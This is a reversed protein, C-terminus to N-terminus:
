CNPSCPRSMASTTPTSSRGCPNRAEAPDCGLVVYLESSWHTRGTGYNHRFSGLHAIRQAAALSRESERLARRARAEVTIDRVTSMMSHPSGDPNAKLESQVELEIVEGDSRLARFNLDRRVPARTEVSRALARRESELVKEADAPLLLAEFEAGTMHGDPDLGYIRAFEPSWTVIDRGYDRRVNGVHAIRQAEALDGIVTNLSAEARRLVRHQMWLVVLTLVGVLLLFLALRQAYLSIRTLQWRDHATMQGLRRFADSLYRDLQVLDPALLSAVQDRLVVDAAPADLRSVLASVRDRTRELTEANEPLVAVAGPYALVVGIRHALLQTREDLQM